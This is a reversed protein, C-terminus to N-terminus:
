RTTFHPTVSRLVSLCDNIDIAPSVVLPNQISSNISVVYSATADRPSGRKGRKWRKLDARSSFSLFLFYSKKERFYFVMGFVPIHLLGRLAFSEDSGGM